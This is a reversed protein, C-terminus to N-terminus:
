RFPIVVDADRILRLVEGHPLQKAICRPRGVKRECVADADAYLKLGVQEFVEIFDYLSPRGIKGGHLPLLHYVGDNVLLISTQNEALSLGLGMRFAESAGITNFPGDQVIVVVKKM